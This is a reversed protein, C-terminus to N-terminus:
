ILSMILILNSINLSTLSYCESFMCNMNTVNNTNFNSLNLSILSSCYSFMSTMDNVYNTNFDSLDLSTLSYCESFMSIMEKVNNPYINSLDLSILSSCKSFMFSMNPLTKLFIIKIEYKGRQSFQHEFCFNIKKANIYLQCYENSIYEEIFKNLIQVPKDIEKINYTCIIRNIFTKNIKINEKCSSEFGINNIKFEKFYNIRNNLNPFQSILTELSINNYKFDSSIDSINIIKLQKLNDNKLNEDVLSLIFNVNEKYNHLELRLVLSELKHSNKIFEIFFKYIHNNSSNINEYSENIHGISINLHKLNELEIFNILENFYTKQIENECYISNIDKFSKIFYKKIGISLNIDCLNIGKNEIIEEVKNLNNNLKNLGKIDIKKYMQIENNDVSLDFNIYYEKFKKENNINFQFLCKGEGRNKYIFVFNYFNLHIFNINNLKNPLNFFSQFSFQYKFLLIDIIFNNIKNYDIDLKNKIRKNSVYNNM